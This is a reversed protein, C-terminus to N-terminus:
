KSRMAVTPEVSMARRAPVICAVGAIVTLLLSVVTFTLPDSDSVGLLLSSALRGLWLAGALGVAIGILSLRVGEGVFMRFIDGSGAGIALRVGIEQTRMSISYHILGYLGVAAMVLAILSFCALLTTQFRRQVLYGGLQEDLTGAIASPANIDVRAIAARLIGALAKPDDSATRILLDASQPPEQELSYFIQPVPAREQGQLRMDAVVGVVAYWPQDSDRSGFKCRRGVPDLRPWLRRALAENVIAVKASEPGDSSAFFRGRRLPTGLTTFFNASV